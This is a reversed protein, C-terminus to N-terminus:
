GAERQAATAQPAVAPPELGLDLMLKRVLELCAQGAGRVLAADISRYGTLRTM